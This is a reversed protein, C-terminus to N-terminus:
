KFNDKIIHLLTDLIHKVQDKRVDNRTGINCYHEEYLFDLKSTKILIAYDCSGNSATTISGGAIGTVSISVNANSIQHLGIVMEKAVEKSYVSYKDITQPNVGLIKIKAENSYTIYSEKLVNSAGSANIITSALLGGTCSEATSITLGLDDLIDVIQQELPQSLECANIDKMIIVGGIFYNYWMAKFIM